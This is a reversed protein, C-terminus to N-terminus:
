VACNEKHRGQVHDHGTAQQACTAWPGCKAALEGTKSQGELPKQIQLGRSGKGAFSKFDFRSYIKKKM